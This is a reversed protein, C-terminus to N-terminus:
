FNGQFQSFRDEQKLTVVAKAVSLIKKRLIKNWLFAIM